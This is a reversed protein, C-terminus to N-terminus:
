NMGNGLGWSGLCGGWRRGGGGDWGGETSRGAAREGAARLVGEVKKFIISFALSSENTHTKDM